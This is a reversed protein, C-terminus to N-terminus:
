TKNRYHKEVLILVAM